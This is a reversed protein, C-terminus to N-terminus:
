VTLNLSRRPISTAALILVTDSLVLLPHASTFTTRIRSIGLYFLQNTLAVTFIYVGQKQVANPEEKKWLSAM